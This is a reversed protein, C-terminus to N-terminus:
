KGLRIEVWGTSDFQDVYAIQRWEGWYPDEEYIGYSARADVNIAAPGAKFHVGGVDAPVRVVASQPEGTCLDDGGFYFPANGSAVLKGIRQAISVDVYTEEYLVMLPPEVAPLPACTFTVAVDVLTGRALLRASDLQVTVVPAAAAAPQAALFVVIAATAFLRRM